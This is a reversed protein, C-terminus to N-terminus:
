SKLDTPDVLDKALQIESRLFIEALWMEWVLLGTGCVLSIVGTAGVLLAIDVSVHTLLGYQFYTGTAGLLSTFASAAFTGIALYFWTLARVLLLSRQHNFFKIESPMLLEPQRLKDYLQRSRDVVRAFRNSTSLSLLSSSNTLLAPAVIFTLLQFPNSASEFNIM